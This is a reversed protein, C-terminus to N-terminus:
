TLFEETTSTKVGDIVVDEFGPVPSTADMLLVMKEKFYPIDDITAKVCHSKAEGAIVIIDAQDLSRILNMNPQTEDNPVAPKIASYHETYVNTGKFIWNVAGNGNEEWDLLERMLPIAVNHGSTGILCHPPWITLKKVEKVYQFFRDENDKKVPMWKGDKVDKWTIVTFPTPHKSDKDVWVCPNAIHSLNHSDLTCHINTLQKGLRHVMKALRKMDEDAGPVSLAGDPSCFDQQCDVALLHVKM